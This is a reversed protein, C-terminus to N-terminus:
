KGCHIDRLCHDLFQFADDIVALDQLLIVFIPRLWVIHASLFNFDQVPVVVNRKQRCLNSRQDVDLVRLVHVSELTEIIQHLVEFTEHEREDAHVELDLGNLISVRQWRLSEYRFYLAYFHNVGREVLHDINVAM